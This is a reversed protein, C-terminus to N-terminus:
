EWYKKFLAESSYTEFTLREEIYAQWLFYYAACFRKISTEDTGYERCTGSRHLCGYYTDSEHKHQYICLEGVKVILTYEILPKSKLKGHTDNVFENGVAMRAFQTGNTLRYLATKEAKQKSIPSDSLIAITLDKNSDIYFNHGSQQMKDVVDVLRLEVFYDNVMDDSNSLLFAQVPKQGELERNRNITEYANFFADAENKIRTEYPAKVFEDNIIAKCDHADLGRTKGIKVLSGGIGFAEGCDKLERKDDLEAPYWGYVSKSGPLTHCTYYFGENAAIADVPNMSVADQFAEKTRRMFVFKLHNRMCYDLTTYTKGTGRGGLVFNFSMGFSAIYGIDVYGTEQYLKGTNYSSKM